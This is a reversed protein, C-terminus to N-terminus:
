TVKTKNSMIIHYLLRINQFFGLSSLARQLTIQIPRDGLILRCGPVKFSAIHAARFEGGPAMGLEETIHASASLLMVQLLGQVVGNQLAPRTRFGFERGPHHGDGEAQELEQGRAAPDGRRAVSHQGSRRVAGGHGRRAASRVGGAARGESEGSQLPGHRGPLAEVAQLLSFVGRGFNRQAARGDAQIPVGPCDSSLSSSWVFVKGTSKNLQPTEARSRSFVYQGSFTLQPFRALCLRVSVMTLPSNSESTDDSKEEDEVVREAFNSTSDALSVASNGAQESVAGARSLSLSKMRFIDEENLESAEDRAANPDFAVNPRRQENPSEFADDNGTGDAVSYSLEAAESASVSESPRLNKMRFIDDGTLETLSQRQAQRVSQEALDPSQSQDPSDFDSVRDPRAQSAQPAPNSEPNM